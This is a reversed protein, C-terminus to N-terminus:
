FCSVIILRIFFCFLGNIIVIRHMMPNIPTNKPIMAGRIYKSGESNSAWYPNLKGNQYTMTPVINDMMLRIPNINM